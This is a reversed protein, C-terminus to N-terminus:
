ASKRAMRLEIVQERMRTLEDRLMEMEIAMRAADPAAAPGNERALAEEITMNPDDGYKAMLEKEQLEEIEASKKVWEYFRPAHIGLRACIDKVPVGERQMQLAKAKFNNDYLKKAAM